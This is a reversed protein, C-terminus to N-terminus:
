ERPPEWRLYLSLSAGRTSYPGPALAFMSDEEPPGVARAFSSDARRFGRCTEARTVGCSRGGMWTNAWRLGFAPMWQAYNLQRFSLHYFGPGTARYM